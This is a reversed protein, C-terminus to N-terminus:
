SQLNFGEKQYGHYLRKDYCGIVINEKGIRKSLVAASALHILDFGRLSHLDALVDVNSLVTNSLEVVLFDPWDQKFNVVLQKYDKEKLLGDDKIRKFVARAEAYAVVSTSVHKSNEVLKTVTSSGEEEIYLKVLASTDLYCIM